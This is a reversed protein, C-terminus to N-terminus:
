TTVLGFLALSSAEVSLAERKRESAAAAHQICSMQGLPTVIIKTGGGLFCESRARTWRQVELALEFRCDVADCFTDTYTYAM